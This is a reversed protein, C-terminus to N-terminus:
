YLVRKKKINYFIDYYCYPLHFPPYHETVSIIVGATEAKNGSGLSSQEKHVLYGGGTLPHVDQRPAPIAPPYSLPHHPYDSILTIM